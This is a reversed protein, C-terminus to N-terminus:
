TWIWFSENMNVETLNTRNKWVNMFWFHFMSFVFGSGQELSGNSYKCVAIYNDTECFILQHLGM